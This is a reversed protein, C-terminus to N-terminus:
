AVNPGTFSPHSCISQSCGTSYAKKLARLPWVDGYCHKNKLRPKKTEMWPNWFLKLAKIRWTHIRPEICQQSSSRQQLIQIQVLESMNFDFVSKKDGDPYGTTLSGSYLWVTKPGSFPRAPFIPFVSSCSMWTFSALPFSYCNNYVNTAHLSNGSNLQIM